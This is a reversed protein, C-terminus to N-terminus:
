GDLEDYHRFIGMDNFAIRRKSKLYAAIRPRGMVRDHLETIRKHKRELKKMLRPFAHRLGTVTQFMSLDAYTARRGTLYPGGSAEIVRDFYRFYKPVRATRFDEARRAAETKQLDSSCM